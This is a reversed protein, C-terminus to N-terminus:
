GLPILFKDGSLVISKAYQATYLVMPLTTMSAEDIFVNDFPLMEDLQHSKSYFELGNITCFLARASNFKLKEFLESAEDNEELFQKWEQIVKIQESNISINKSNLVKNVNKIVDGLISRNDNDIHFKSKKADQQNGIRYFLPKEPIANYREILKDVQPHDHTLVLIKRDLMQEWSKSIVTTKGTSAFGNLITLPIKQFIKQFALNQQDDWVKGIPLDRENEQNCLGQNIKDLKTQTLFKKLEFSNENTGYILQKLGRLQFTFQYIDGSGLLKAQKNQTLTKKQSKKRKPSNNEDLMPKEFLFLKSHSTLENSNLEIPLNFLISFYDSPLKENIKAKKYDQDDNLSIFKVKKINQYDNWSLNKFAFLNKGLYNVGSEKVYFEDKQKISLFFSSHNNFLKQYKPIDDSIDIVINKKNFTILSTLEILDINQFQDFSYLLNDLDKFDFPIVNLFQIFKNSSNQQSLKDNIEIIQYTLVCKKKSILRMVCIEKMNNLEKFFYM